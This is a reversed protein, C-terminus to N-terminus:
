GDKRREAKSGFDNAYMETEGFWKGFAQCGQWGPRDDFYKCDGCRIIEQQASPIQEMVNTSVYDAFEKTIDNTGYYDLFRKATEIADKREIPDDM